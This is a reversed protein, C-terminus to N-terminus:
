PRKDGQPRLATVRAHAMLDPRSLGVAARRTGEQKRTEVRLRNASENDRAHERHWLHFVETALHGNRRVLGQNHLRLVLDADEHGWGAFTEDFGDVAALDSWWLGFNCSRIGKWSFAAQTRGPLAPWQLLHALKNVHGSLRLRLWDGPQLAMPDVERDLVRRTLDPSLLVRSGNVFAGPRALARHASVFGPGPVCDGDLFVIYEAGAEHAVQAGLNRAQSATFGTDPHWVHWAPAACPPFGAELAAGEEPRAGDDAGVLVDSTALQPALARLLALLADSRNYTLVVFGIRM